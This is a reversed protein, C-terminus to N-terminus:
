TSCTSTGVSLRPSMTTSSSRSECLPLLGYLCGDLGGACTEQEETDASRSMPREEGLLELAEDSLRPRVGQAGDGVGDSSGEGGDRRSSHASETAPAPETSRSASTDLLLSRAGGDPGWPDGSPPAGASGRRSRGPGGTIM